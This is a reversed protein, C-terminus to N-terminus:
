RMPGLRPSCSTSTKSAESCPSAQPPWSRQHAAKPVCAGVIRMGHHADRRMQHVLDAASRGHGLLLVESMFEGSRRRHHVFKRASYRGLLTLVTALPLAIIIYGRAVEAKTAWSFTGVTAIVVVAAMLVRRFEEYGVTLFRTEYARAVWMAALWLVPLSASLAIYGLLYISTPHNGFRGIYATAAAVLAAGADIAIVAAVYSREWKRRSVRLVVNRTTLVPQSIVNAVGMGKGRM